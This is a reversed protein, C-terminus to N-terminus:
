PCRPELSMEFGHETQRDIVFGHREYLARAPNSKLVGLRVRAGAQRAQAVVEAVLQGGLGLRQFEPLLQIQILEWDAEGRDLKLLGIPKGDVELIEACGFCKRVRTLSETEDRVLGSALEHVRMTRERLSILFNLDDARAARRTLQRISHGSM